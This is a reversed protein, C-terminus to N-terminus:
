KIICDNDEEPKSECINLTIKNKNKKDLKCIIKSKIM